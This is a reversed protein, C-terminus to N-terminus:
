APMPQTHREKKPAMYDAFAENTHRQAFILSGLFAIITREPDIVDRDRESKTNSRCKVFRRYLVRM